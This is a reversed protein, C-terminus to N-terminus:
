GARDMVGQARGGGAVKELMSSLGEERAVGGEGGFAEKVITCLVSDDLVCLLSNEGLRRDGGMLVARHRELLREILADGRVRHASPVGKAKDSLTRLSAVIGGDWLDQVVSPQRSVPTLPKPNVTEGM